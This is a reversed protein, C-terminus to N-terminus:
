SRCRVTVTFGVPGKEHGLLELVGNAGSPRTIVSTKGNHKGKVDLAQGHLPRPWFGVQSTPIHRALDWTTISLFLHKYMYTYVALRVLEIFYLLSMSSGSDLKRSRRYKNKRAYLQM